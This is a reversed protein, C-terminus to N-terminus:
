WDQSCCQRVPPAHGGPGFLSTLSRGPEAGRLGHGHPHSGSQTGTEVDTLFPSVAFSGHPKSIAWASGRTWDLGSPSHVDLSVIKLGHWRLLLQTSSFLMVTWTAYIWHSLNLYSLFSSKLSSLIFSHIFSHHIFGWQTFQNSHCCGGQRWFPGALSQEEFAVSIKGAEVWPGM